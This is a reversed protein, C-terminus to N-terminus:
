SSGEPSVAGLDSCVVGEGEWSGTAPVGEMVQLAGTAYNAGTWAYVGEM